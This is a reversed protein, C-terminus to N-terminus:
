LGKSGKGPVPVGQTHARQAEVESVLATRTARTQELTHVCCSGVLPVSFVLERGFRLRKGM